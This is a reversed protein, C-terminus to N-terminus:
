DQGPISSMDGHGIGVVIVMVGRPKNKIKTSEKGHQGSTICTLSQFAVVTLCINIVINAFFPTGLVMTM